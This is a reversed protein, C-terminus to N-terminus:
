FAGKVENTNNDIQEIVGYVNEFVLPKDFISNFLFVKNNKTDLIFENSKFDSNIKYEFILNETFGEITIKGLDYNELDKNYKYVEPEVEFFKEIKFDEVLVRDTFVYCSFDKSICSFKIENQFDFNNLLYEKLNTLEINSKDKNSKIQFKPLLISYIVGLLILVLILEILTFSGIKNFKKNM